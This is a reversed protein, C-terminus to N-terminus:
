KYNQRDIKEFKEILNGNVNNVSVKAYFSVDQIQRIKANVYNSKTSYFQSVKKISKGRYKPRSRTIPKAMKIAMAAMM